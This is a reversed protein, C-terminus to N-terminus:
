FMAPAAAPPPAAVVLFIRPPLVRLWRGVLSVDDCKMSAMTARRPTVGARLPAWGDRSSRGHHEHLWHADRRGDLASCPPWCFAVLARHRRLRSARSRCPRPARHARGLLARGARGLRGILMASTGSSCPRPARHARGLLARAARGLRGILVASFRAVLPLRLPAAAVRSTWGEDGEEGSWRALLPALRRGVDSLWARGARPDQARHAILRACM